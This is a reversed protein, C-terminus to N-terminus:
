LFEGVLPIARDNHNRVVASNEIVRVADDADIVAPDCTAGPTRSADCTGYGLAYSQTLLKALLRADLKLDTIPQKTSPNDVYYAIAIASNALPASTFRRGSATSAAADPPRSVMALGLSSTLSGSGTLFAQRAQYEDVSGDYNFTLGGSGQCWGPQWQAVARALM